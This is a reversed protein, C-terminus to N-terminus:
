RIKKWMAKFPHTIREYLSWVFVVIIVTVIVQAELSSAHAKVYDLIRITIPFFALGFVCMCLFAIAIPTLFRDLKDMENQDKKRLCNDCLIPTKAENWCTAVKDESFTANREM